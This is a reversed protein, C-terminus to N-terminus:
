EDLLLEGLAVGAVLADAVAAILEFGVDLFALAPEAVQMREVPQRFVDVPDVIDSLEDIQLHQGLLLRLPEGSRLLEEPPNPTVQMVERPTGLLMQGEVHLGADALTHAVGVMGAAAADFAEHLVIEQNRLIDAVQGPDEARDELDILFLRSQRPQAPSAPPAADGREDEIAAAQRNGRLIKELFVRDPQQAQKVDRLLLLEVDVGMSQAKHGTRQAQYVGLQADVRLGIRVEFFSGSVASRRIFSAPTKPRKM